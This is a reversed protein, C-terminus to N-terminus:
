NKAFVGKETFRKSVLLVFGGALVLVGSFDAAQNFSKYKTVLAGNIPPGILAGISVIFMGMGLYTGINQPNKPVQAICVSMLSVIAGSTFGFLTAFVILGANTTIRQWCICLIGSSLAAASFLNLRGLKDAMFGPIVRGFFSAANVIATLYFALRVSMGHEVAYTPLYFFPTFLGIITLFVGAVLLCYHPEKFASLLFFTDKRPPLRARIAAVSPLMIAVMLFGLIRVTWGFGLRPNSLMNNLAIPFIVGGLSSGAVAIGMAAGRKKHFYQGVAAMGPAM